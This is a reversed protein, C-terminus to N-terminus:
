KILSYPARSAIYWSIATRESSQRCRGASRAARSAATTNRKKGFRATDILLVPLDTGPNPTCVFTCLQIRGGMARTSLCCVSGFAEARWRRSSSRMLPYCLRPYRMQAYPAASRETRPTKADLATLDFDMENARKRSRKDNLIDMHEATVLTVGSEKPMTSGSIRAESM